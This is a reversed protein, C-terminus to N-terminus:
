RKKPFKTTPVFPMGGAVLTRELRLSLPDSPFVVERALMEIYQDSNPPVPPLEPIYVFAWQDYRELDYYIRMSVAPSGSVVGFIFKPGSGDPGPQGLDTAQGLAVEGSRDRVASRGTPLRPPESREREDEEDGFDVTTGLYLFRLQPSMTQGISDYYAELFRELAPHGRSVPEWPQNRNMPDQLASKRLLHVQQTSGRLTIGGALQELSTPWPGFMQVGGIGPQVSEHGRLRALMQYRQIAQVIQRGRFLMETERERKLVEAISPLIGTILILMVTLLGLVVILM